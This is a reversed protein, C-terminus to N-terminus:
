LRGYKRRKFFEILASGAMSVPSHLSLIERFFEKNKNKLKYLKKRNFTLLCLADNGAGFIM